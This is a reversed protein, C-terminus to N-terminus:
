LLKGSVFSLSSIIFIQLNRSCFTKYIRCWFHIKKTRQLHTSGTSSTPCRSCSSSRWRSTSSGPTPCSTSCILHPEFLGTILKMLFIEPIFLQAFSQKIDTATEYFHPIHCCPISFPSTDSYLQGGTQSMQILRNQLYFWFNAITM